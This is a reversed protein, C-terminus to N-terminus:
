VFLDHNQFYELIRKNIFLINSLINKKINVSIQIM